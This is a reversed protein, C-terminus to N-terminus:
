LIPRPINVLTADSNELIYQVALMAACCLCCLIIAGIAVYIINKNRNPQAPPPLKEAM